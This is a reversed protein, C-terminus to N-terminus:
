VLDPLTPSNQSCDRKHDTLTALIYLTRTESPCIAIHNIACDRKCLPESTVPSDAITM